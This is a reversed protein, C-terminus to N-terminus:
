LGHMGDKGSIQFMHSLLPEPSIFPFVLVLTHSDSMHEYEKWVARNRDCQFGSLWHQFSRHHWTVAQVQRWSLPAGGVPDWALIACPIHTNNLWGQNLSSKTVNVCSSRPLGIQTKLWHIVQNTRHESDVSLVTLSLRYSLQPFMM